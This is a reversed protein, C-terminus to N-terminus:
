RNTLGAEFARMAPTPAIAARRALIWRVEAKLDVDAVAVQHQERQAVSEPVLAIADTQAVLSVCSSLNNLRYQPRVDYGSENLVAFVRNRDYYRSPIALPRAMLEALTPEPGRPKYIIVIRESSLPTRHLAHAHESQEFNAEDALAIDCVGAILDAYVDASGVVAEVSLAPQRNLLHALADPLVSEAAIAIAGVRLSGVQGAALLAAEAEFGALAKLAAEAYPLLHRASDTPEVWRTTRNFLRLDLHAELQAIQKTLTGQSVGLREAAAKFSGGHYVEAFPELHRLARLDKSM